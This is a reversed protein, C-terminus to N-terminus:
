KREKRLLDPFVGLIIVMRTRTEQFDVKKATMGCRVVRRM